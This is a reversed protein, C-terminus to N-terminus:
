ALREALLFANPPFESAKILTALDTTTGVYLAEPKKPNTDAM